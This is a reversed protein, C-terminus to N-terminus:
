PLCPMALPHRISRGARAWRIAMVGSLPGRAPTMAGVLHHVKSEDVGVDTSSVRSLPKITDRRHKVLTEGGVRLGRHPASCTPNPSPTLTSSTLWPAKVKVQVLQQCGAPKRCVYSSVMKKTAPDTVEKRRHFVELLSQAECDHRITAPSHQPRCRCGTHKTKAPHLPKTLHLGRRKAGQQRTM